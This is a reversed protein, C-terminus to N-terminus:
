LWAMREALLDVQRKLWWCRAVVRLRQAQRRWGQYWQYGRHM